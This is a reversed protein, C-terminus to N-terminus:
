EFKIHRLDACEEAGGADKTLIYLTKGTDIAGAIPGVYTGNGESAGAVTLEVGTAPDSKATITLEQERAFSLPTSSVQANAAKLDLTRDSKNLYLHLSLGASLITYDSDMENVAASVEFNPAIKMTIRFYGNPLLKATNNSFLSEGERTGQNGMTPIYSSPYKAGLEGQAGYAVTETQTPIAGAGAPVNRTELVLADNVSSPHVISLRRWQSMTVNQYLGTGDQQSFHSYCAEATMTPGTPGPKFCGVGAFGEGRLWASVVRANVNFYRSHQNGTSSFKSANMGGAPDAVGTTVTMNLTPDASSLWGQLSWSDSNLVSNSRKTEVSLGWKTPNPGASVNRARPADPGFGVCLSSDSTQSSKNKSPSEFSLWDPLTYTFKSCPEPGGPGLTPDTATWSYGVVGGAGGAGGFGGTGGMGGAGTM